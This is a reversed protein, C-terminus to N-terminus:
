TPSGSQNPNEIVIPIDGTGSTDGGVVVVTRTSTRRVTQANNVTQTSGTQQQGGNSATYYQQTATSANSAVGTQISAAAPIANPNTSDNMAVVAAKASEGVSSEVTSDAASVSPDAALVVAINVLTASSNPDTGALNAGMTAINKVVAAVMAAKGQRVKLAVLNKIQDTQGAQALAIIQAQFQNQEVQASVAQAEAAPAFVPSVAPLTAVLGFAAVLIALRM